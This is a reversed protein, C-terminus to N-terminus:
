DGVASCLFMLVEARRPVRQKEMLLRGSWGQGWGMNMIEQVTRM